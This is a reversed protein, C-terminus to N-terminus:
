QDTELKSIQRSVWREREREGGGVGVGVLRGSTLSCRRFRVRSTVGIPVGIM